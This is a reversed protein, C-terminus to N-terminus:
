MLYAKKKALRALESSTEFSNTLPKEAFVAINREMAYKAIDYQHKPIVAIAIANLHEKELMERWDMYQNLNYKKCYNKMRESNKGTIGVVECEAISSFSPLMGYMGFGSGVIGVNCIM